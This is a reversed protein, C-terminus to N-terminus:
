LELPRRAVPDLGIGPVRDVQSPQQPQALEGGDRHGAHILFRRSIQHTSPLVASTIQHTSPMPQRFQQQALAGDVAAAVGPGIGM